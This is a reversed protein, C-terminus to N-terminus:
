VGNKLYKKYNNYPLKFIKYILPNVMLSETIMSLLILNNLLENKSIFVITIYLTCIVTSMIKLKLRHKANIIPRKHTDAPAYIIMSLLCFISIIIKQIFNIEIISFIYPMLVFAFLSSIYCMWSKKAHAGYAFLRLGNMFLCFILTEKLLGFLLSAGLIVSMKTVTIYIIELGYKVRDIMDNDYSYNKTILHISNNLFVEKM